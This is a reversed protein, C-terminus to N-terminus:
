QKKILILIKKMSSRLDNRLLFTSLQFQLNFNNLRKSNLYILKNLNQIIFVVVVVVFVSRDKFILSFLWSCYLFSKNYYM